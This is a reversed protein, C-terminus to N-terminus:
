AAGEVAPMINGSLRRGGAGGSFDAANNEDPRSAPGVIRVRVFHVTNPGPTETFAPHVRRMIESQQASFSKHIRLNRGPDDM